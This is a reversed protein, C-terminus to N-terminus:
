KSSHSCGHNCCRMLCHCLTHVEDLSKMSKVFSQSGIYIGPVVMQASKFLGMFLTNDVSSKLSAERMEMFLVDRLQEHRTQWVLAQKSDMKIM